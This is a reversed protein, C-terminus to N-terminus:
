LRHVRSRRSSHGAQLAPRPNISLIAPMFSLSLIGKELLLPAADEIASRYAGEFTIVLTKLPLPDGSEFAELLAPLSIVHYGGAEIDHIHELFQELGLTSEPYAEEDIRHYALIVASHADEPLPAPNAAMSVRPALTGLLFLFFVHLAFRM